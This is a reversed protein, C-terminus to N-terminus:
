GEPHAAHEGSTFVWERFDDVPRYGLDQYIKNSTPNALDAYLMCASALTTQAHRTAAAVCGSAYGRGRLDPPTYVANIRALGAVPRTIWTMAAPEGGDEWIWILGGRRLRADVAGSNDRPPQHPGAEAAFADAWRILLDRDDATAPRPRGSPTRAVTPPEDLRYIRSNSRPVAADGTLEQYRGAFWDSCRTRGSVGPLPHLHEAAFGALALAAPEAV